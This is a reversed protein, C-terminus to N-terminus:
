LHRGPSRDGTRPRRPTIKGSGTPMRRRSVFTRSGSTLEREQEKAEIAEEGLTVIPSATAGDLFQSLNRRVWEKTFVAM